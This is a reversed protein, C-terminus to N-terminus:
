CFEIMFAINTYTNTKYEINNNDDHLESYIKTNRGNTERDFQKEFLGFIKWITQQQKKKVGERNSRSKEWKRTALPKNPSIRM